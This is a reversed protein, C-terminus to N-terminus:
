QVPESLRPMAVAVRDFLGNATELAALRQEGELRFLAVLSVAVLALHAGEALAFQAPYLDPDRPLNLIRTFLPNNHKFGCLFTYKGYEEDCRAKDWGLKQGNKDVLTRVDWPGRKRNTSAFWKTAADDNDVIFGLMHALEFLNACASMAQFGHGCVALLDVSRYEEGLRRLLHRELSRTETLKATVIQDHTAIREVFDHVEAALSIHDELEESSKAYWDREWHIWDMVVESLYKIRLPGVGPMVRRASLEMAGDLNEIVNV